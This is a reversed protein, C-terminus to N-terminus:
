VSPCSSRAAAIWIKKIQEKIKTNKNEINLIIAANDAFTRLAFGDQLTFFVSRVKCSFLYFRYAMSDMVPKEDRSWTMTACSVEM